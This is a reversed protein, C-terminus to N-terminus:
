RERPSAEGWDVTGDIQVGTEAWGEMVVGVIARVESPPPFGETPSDTPPKALLEGSHDAPPLGLM